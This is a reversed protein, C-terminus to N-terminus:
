PRTLVEARIRGLAAACDDMSRGGPCVTVGVSGHDIWACAVARGGDDGKVNACRLKGGLRGPNYATADTANTLERMAKTLEGDPDLILRTAGFFFVPRAASRPDVLVRAFANDVKQEQRIRRELDATQTDYESTHAVTFGAVTAEPITVTAPHEALIPATVAVGLVGCAVFLVSLTGVVWPWRPRRRREVYVVRVPPQAAVRM